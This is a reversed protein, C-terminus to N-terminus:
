FNVQNGNNVSEQIDYLKGSISSADTSIIDKRNMASQEHEVSARKSITTMTPKTAQGLATKEERMKSSGRTFRRPADM